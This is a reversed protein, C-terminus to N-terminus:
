GAPRARIKAWERIAKIQNKLFGSLPSIKGINISIIRSSLAEEKEYSDYLACNIVKKIEFASFGRTISSLMELEEYSLNCFKETLIKFIEKRAEGNPLDIFFIEDFRGKRLFEPPLDSINSATALVFVPAGKEQLWNIFTGFIRTSVGSDTSRKVGSFGRDVNDIWLVAPAISETLKIVKQLNAESSGMLPSFLSGTDLRLLPMNWERSLAKAILSKGCGAVGILIVGGPLDRRDELFFIKGRIRLWKKLKKLGGIHRFDISPPYFELLGTKRIIQKKENMIVEAPLKEKEEFARLIARKTERLTLGKCNNIILKQTNKDAMPIANLSFIEEVEKKIDNFGPLSYDIIKIEKELEKPCQFVPSILIISNSSFKLKQSLNKIHSQIISNNLYHHFDLLLFVTKNDKSYNSIHNLIEEPNFNGKKKVKM